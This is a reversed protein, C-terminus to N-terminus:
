RMLGVLFLELLAFILGFLFGRRFGKDHEEALQRELEDKEM